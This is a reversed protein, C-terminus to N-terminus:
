NERGKGKEYQAMAGLTTSDTFHFFVLGSIATL